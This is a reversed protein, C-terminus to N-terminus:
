SFFTNLVLVHFHFSESSAFNRIQRELCQWFRLQLMTIASFLNSHFCHWCHGRTDDQRWHFPIFVVDANSAVILPTSPLPESGYGRWFSIAVSHSIRLQCSCSHGLWCQELCQRRTGFIWFLKAELKPFENLILSHLCHPDRALLNVNFTYNFLNFILQGTPACSDQQSSLSAYLSQLFTCRCTVQAGLWPLDAGFGYSVQHQWISLHLQM